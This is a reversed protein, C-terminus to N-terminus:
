IIIRTGIMLKRLRAVCEKTVQTNRVNLVQLSENGALREVSDNTLDSGEVDFVKLSKMSAFEGVQENLFGSLNRLYLERIASCVVITRLTELDLNSPCKRNDVRLLRGKKSLGVVCGAAALRDAFERDDSM